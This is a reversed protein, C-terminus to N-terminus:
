ALYLRVLKAMMEIHDDRDNLCPIYYFQEGGHALLADRNQLLIPSLTEVSDTAFGPCILDIEIQRCTDLLAGTRWPLIFLNLLLKKIFKPSRLVRPDSLYQRLFNKIGRRDPTEPTGLNILIVATMLTNM